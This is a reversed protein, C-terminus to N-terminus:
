AEGAPRIPRCPCGAALMGAPIDRTVVSGAAIVAGNGITVGPLVTVNGGFWVDDGVTIPKAFEVGQRRTSVLMPHGATYFGCNPGLFVHDGFIVEACDLIVTNHNAYFNEGITINYGYDCWFASEIHFSSGVKGLIKRMLM